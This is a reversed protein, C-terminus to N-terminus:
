HIGRRINKGARAWERAILFYLLFCRLTEEQCLPSHKELEPVKIQQLLCWSLGTDGMSTIKNFLCQSTPCHFFNQGTNWTFQMILLLGVQLSVSSWLGFVMSCPGDMLYWLDSCTLALAWFTRSNAVEVTTNQERKYNQRRHSHLPGRLKGITLLSPQPPAFPSAKTATGLIDEEEGLSGEALPVWGPLTSLQTTGLIPGGSQLVRVM